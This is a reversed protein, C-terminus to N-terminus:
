NDALKKYTIKTLDNLFLVTAKVYFTTATLEGKPTKCFGLARRQRAVQSM